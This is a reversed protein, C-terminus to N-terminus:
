IARFFNEPCTCETLDKQCGPHVATMIELNQCIFQFDPPTINVPQNADADADPDMKVILINGALGIGFVDLSHFIHNFINIDFQIGDMVYALYHFDPRFDVIRIDRLPDTVEPIRLNWRIENWDHLPFNQLFSVRKLGTQILVVNATQFHSM